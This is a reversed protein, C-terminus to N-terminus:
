AASGAFGELLGSDGALDLITFRDRTFRAHRINDRYFGSDLGLEGATRQAGAQAMARDLRAFPLMVDRLQAAFGQWDAAFRANIREATAADIAKQATQQQMASAMDRGYRGTLEDMPIETPRVEPPRDARLMRNQLKSVTLTTVGVQEGHSTGPHASGAFMDFYHSMMHEAMSGSHTTGTFSTGLGMIAAIRTLTALFDFSGESLAGAADLMHAEDYALLVYPTESYPTDFLLHSMLWDVQATTRCIVDAFAARVLRKPCAALIELDFFVGRASHCSVSKKFGDFSVSATPTTYANMPSTPFVSYERGDLFTAYKVSDSVTGSGIAILAEHGRTKERLEEIGEATCRPTEWVFEAVTGLPRLAKAVRAGLVERTIADSVVLISKGQHFPAVLDAEAGDLSREIAIGGIPIEVPVGTAPDDWEGAVLADLIGGYTQTESM